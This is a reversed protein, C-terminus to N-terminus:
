TPATWGERSAGVKNFPNLDNRESRCQPPSTRVSACDPARHYDRVRSHLVRKAEAFRTRENLSGFAGSRYREVQDDKDDAIQM